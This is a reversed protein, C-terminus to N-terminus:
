PDDLEHYIEETRDHYRPSIHMAVVKKAKLLRAIMGAQRATLHAKEYAQSERESLYYAEIFLLDVSSAIAAIRDINEQSYRIDTIYGIKQGPSIIVLEDALDSVPVDKMGRSTPVHAYENMRGMLIHEKLLGIWPGTKYDRDHVAESRINIHFPERLVYGLCAINHDLVVADVCYRPHSAISAGERARSDSRSRRFSEHARALTTHIEHEVVEHIFVELPYDRTLNWEYSSLRSIVKDTIGEPGYIHVPRDRHLIVRFVQDLGMSHDMHLHSLFVSELSLIERNALGSIRGCDFLLSIRRNLLRVYLMPDFLPGNVLRTLFTPRM